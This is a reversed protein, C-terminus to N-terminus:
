TLEWCTMSTIYSTYCLIVRYGRAEVKYTNGTCGHILVGTSLTSPIFNLVRYISPLREIVSSCERNENKTITLIPNVHKKVYTYKQVIKFIKATITYLILQSM